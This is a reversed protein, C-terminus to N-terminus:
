GSRAGTSRRQAARKTKGLRELRYGSHFCFAGLVAYLLGSVLDLRIQGLVANLFHFTSAAIFASGLMFSSLPGGTARWWARPPAIPEGRGRFTRIGIILWSAAWLYGALVVWEWAGSYGLVAWLGLGLIVFALVYTVKASVSTIRM